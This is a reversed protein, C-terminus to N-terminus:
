LDQSVEYFGHKIGNLSVKRTRFGSIGMSLSSKLIRKGDLRRLIDEMPGLDGDQARWVGDM